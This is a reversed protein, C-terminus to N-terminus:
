ASAAEPASRVGLAAAAEPSTQELQKFIRKLAETEGAAFAAARLALGTTAATAAGGGGPDRRPGARKGSARRYTEDAQSCLEHIPRELM